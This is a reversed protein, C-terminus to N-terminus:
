LGDCGGVAVVLGGSCGWGRSPEAMRPAGIGRFMGMRPGARGDTTCWDGQVDGDAPRSQWGHHLVGWGM